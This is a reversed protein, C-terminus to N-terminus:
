AAKNKTSLVAEALGDACAEPSYEQIKERSRMGMNLRLQSDQALAFMAAALADSDKAPIVYGNQGNQVLDPVCGAVDTAIVPLSCSMAENVVLGWPDSHTPFIFADALAYIEPIEERHKWGCFHIAGPCIRAAQERMQGQAAGEGVVVMGMSSRTHADLKAYAALLDFVGKEEVLRGLFLFYRQPLNHHARVEEARARAQAAATSYFNVDVADPAVFINRQDAGLDILYARSTKGATVFASCMSVFRQKMWEM